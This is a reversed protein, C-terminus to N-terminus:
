RPYARRGLIRRSYVYGSIGHRGGAVQDCNNEAPRLLPSRGMDEWYLRAASAGTTLWYLTIDDLVEDRTPSASPRCRVDMPCFRSAGADTGRPLGPTQRATASRRRGRRWMTSTPRTARNALTACRRTTAAEEESLGAPAPGRGRTGRVEPPITAPLRSTSRAVRDTGTAGDRRHHRVGTAARPWTTTYGLREMLQGLGRSGTRDWGPGAPKGSFGYGPISPIM